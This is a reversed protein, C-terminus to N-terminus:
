CDKNFNLVEKKTLRFYHSNGESIVFGRQREIGKDTYFLYFCLNPFGGKKYDWNKVEEQYKLKQERNYERVKQIRM